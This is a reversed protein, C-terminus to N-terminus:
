RLRSTPEGVRYRCLIAGPVTQQIANNCIEDGACCKIACGVRNYQSLDGQNLAMFKDKLEKYDLTKNVWNINAKAYRIDSGIMSDPCQQIQTEAEAALNLEWELPTYATGAAKDVYKSSNYRIQNQDKALSMPCNFDLKHRLSCRIKGGGWLARFRNAGARTETEPEKWFSWGFSGRGFFPGTHGGIKGNYQKGSFLYCFSLAARLSWPVSPNFGFAGESAGKPCFRECLGERNKDCVPATYIREPMKEKSVYEYGVPSSPPRYNFGCHGKAREKGDTGASWCASNDIPHELYTKTGDENTVTDYRGIRYFGDGGVGYLDKNQVKIGSWFTYQDSWHAVAFLCHNPLAAFVKQDVPTILARLHNLLAAHWIDVEGKTPNKPDTFPGIGPGRFNYYLQRIGRILPISKGNKDTSRPCIQSVLPQGPVSSDFPVGDWEDAKGWEDQGWDKIYPNMDHTDGDFHQSWDAQEPTFQDM